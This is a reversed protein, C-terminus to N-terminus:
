TRYGLMRRLIFLIVFSLLPVKPIHHAWGGLATYARFTASWYQAIWLCSRTWVSSLWSTVRDFQLVSEMRASELNIWETSQSTHSHVQCWSAWSSTTCYFKREGCATRPISTSWHSWAVVTRVIPITEPLETIVGIAFSGDKWAVWWGAMEIDLL